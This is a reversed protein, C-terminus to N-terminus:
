QVMITIRRNFSRNEATDNARIPQKDGKGSTFVRGDHIGKGLLYKKVSEARRLSLNENYGVNGVNDTHGIIIINVNHNQLLFDNLRKLSSM